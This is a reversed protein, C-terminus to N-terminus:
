AVNCRSPRRHRIPWGVVRVGARLGDLAEAFEEPESVKFGLQSSYSEVPKVWFPFELRRVCGRDDLPLRRRRDPRPSM